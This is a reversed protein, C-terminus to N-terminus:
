WQFTRSTLLWPFDHRTPKFPYVDSRFEVFREYAHGEVDIGYWYQGNSVDKSGIITLTKIGIKRQKWSKNGAIHM